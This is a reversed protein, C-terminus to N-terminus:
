VAASREKGKVASLRGIGMKPNETTGAIGVERGCSWM